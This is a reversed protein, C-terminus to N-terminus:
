NARAAPAVRRALAAAVDDNRGEGDAARLFQQVPERLLEVLPVQAIEVDKEVARHCVLHQGDVLAVLVQEVGLRARQPRHARM